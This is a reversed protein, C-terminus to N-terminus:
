NMSLLKTTKIWTIYRQMFYEFNKLWLFILALWMKSWMFNCNQHHNLTFVLLKPKSNFFWHNISRKPNNLKISWKAKKLYLNLKQHNHNKRKTRIIIRNSLKPITKHQKTWKYGQSKNTVRTNQTEEQCSNHKSNKKKKKKDFIFIKKKL